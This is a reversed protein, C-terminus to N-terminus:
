QWRSLPMIKDYWLYISLLAFGWGIALTLLDTVPDWANYRNAARARFPYTALMTIGLAFIAGLIGYRSILLLSIVVQLVAQLAILRFHQKSDGAGLYAGDYNAAVVQATITFGLLALIPGAAQYRADYLLEVMPVSVLSLVGGMSVAALQVLSRARLVKSRNEANQAPPFKSFLPFIIKDGAARALEIPVTAFMFAVTFIGLDTLSVYAGLIARDSQNILFGGISGLFIYKGFHLLEGIMERNLHWRNSPGKLMVHQAIVKLLSGVIVGVVISWVSGTLWAAFATLILTIFQSGLETFVQVGIQLNRNALAIKTTAFGQILATLGVIPLLQALQPEGYILAAPYALACAGLWLILGRVIQLSWATNLLEEDEGRENQIISVNLGLDSVMALGTLFVYVISILGFAEPFLLRTLILNSVLRLVNAGGFGMILIASSRMARARTGDGKFLETLIVRM